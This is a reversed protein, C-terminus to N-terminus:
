FYELSDTGATVLLFHRLKVVAQLAIGGDHTAAKIGFPHHVASFDARVDALTSRAFDRFINERGVTELPGNGETTAPAM